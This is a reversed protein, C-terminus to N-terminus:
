MGKLISVCLPLIPSWNLNLVRGLLWISVGARHHMRRPTSLGPLVAFQNTPHRLLVRVSNSRFGKGVFARPKSRDRRALYMGAM